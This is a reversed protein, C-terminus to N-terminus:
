IGYKTDTEWGEVPPQSQIWEKYNANRDYVLHEYNLAFFIAVAACTIAVLIIITSTSTYIHM